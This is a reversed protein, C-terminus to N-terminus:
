IKFLSQAAKKKRHHWDWWALAMLIADCIDDKKLQGGGEMLFEIGNGRIRNKQILDKVVSVSARKKVGWRAADYKQALTNKIHLQRSSLTTIVMNTIGFYRSVMAPSISKVFSTTTPLSHSYYYYSSSSSSFLSSSSPFSSIPSSSTKTLTTLIGAFLSEIAVGALIADPVGKLYSRFIQQELLFGSHQFRNKLSSMSNKHVVGWENLIFRHLIQSWEVCDYRSSPDVGLDKKRVTLLEGNSTMEAYAFNKVGIDIAVISNPSVMHYSELLSQYLRDVLIKHSGTGSLGISSLYSSLIPISLASVRTFPDPENPYPFIM